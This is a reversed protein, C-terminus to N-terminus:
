QAHPGGNGVDDSLIQLIVDGREDGAVPPAGDRLDQEWICTKRCQLASDHGLAKPRCFIGHWRSMINQIMSPLKKLRHEHTDPADM